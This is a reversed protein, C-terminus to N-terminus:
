GLTGLGTGPMVPTPSMAGYARRRMRSFVADGELKSITLPPRTHDIMLGLLDSLTDRAHEL